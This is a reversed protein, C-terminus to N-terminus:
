RAYYEELKAVKADALEHMYEDNEWHASLEPTNEVLIMSTTAVDVLEKILALANTEGTEPHFSNIGFRKIKTAAQILEACEEALIDLNQGLDDFQTIKEEISM